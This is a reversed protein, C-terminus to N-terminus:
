LPSHPLLSSLSSLTASISNLLPIGYFICLLIVDNCLPSHAALEGLISRSIVHQLLVFVGDREECGYLGDEDGKEYSIHIHSLFRLPLCAPFLCKQDSGELQRLRCM